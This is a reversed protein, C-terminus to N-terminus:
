PRQFSGAYIKNKFTIAGTAYHGADADISWIFNNASGDDLFAQVTDYQVAASTNLYIWLTKTSGPAIDLSGTAGTAFDCTFTTTSVTGTCLTNTGDTIKVAKTNVAFTGAFEVKLQDGAAAGMTIDKTGTALIDYKAVLM